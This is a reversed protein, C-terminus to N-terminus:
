DHCGAGVAAIREGDLWHTCRLRMAEAAADSTPKLEFVTIWGDDRYRRALAAETGAPVFLRREVPRVPEGLLIVETYLTFGIAPEDAATLYRGGRGLEEAIGCAFFAFGVGIEYDSGRSEVPDVTIGLHPLRRTLAEVVQILRECEKAADAPLQIERLIPVAIHAPGAARLLEGLPRAGPGGIAAIAAADKRDLAEDLRVIENESLGLQRCVAAVLNPLTLDVTLSGIGLEILAEAAVSIIELDAAVEDCGILEAGVQGLQRDPRIGTGKTRLVQGAYCLRLPRPANGLRTTAIRSVQPTMDACLGLMRQSIPDMVRFTEMGTAVGPGSLLNGEYEALPPKVREYGNSLLVSMLRTVVDAEWGAEPPLLDRLGHPLLGPHLADNMPEQQDM